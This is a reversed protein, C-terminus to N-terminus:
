KMRRRYLMWAFLERVYYNPLLIPESSAGLGSVEKMGLAEATKVARYIHFGNTVIVYSSDKGGIAMSYALNEWTSVSEPELFIRSEDIGMQILTQRICEAETIEENAGQGGSAIVKTRPNQKLYEAGAEIRRLLSRSPRTGKVQAGLIIVYDAGSAPKAHAMRIFRIEQWICGGAAVCMPFKLIDLLAKPLFSLATLGAGAILWFKAFTTRVGAYSIILIYYLLHILGAAQLLRKM